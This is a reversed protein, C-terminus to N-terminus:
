RPENVRFNGGVNRHIVRSDGEKIMVDVAYSRGAVFTDMFLKFRLGLSDSSMKTSNSSEDFPIVVDNTVADRVSYHVAEPMYSKALRTVKTSTDAVGLKRVFARLHVAQDTTYEEQVNTLSVVYQVPMLGFTQADQSKLTLTQSLFPVTGDLSSWIETFTVSGSTALQERIAPISTPVAVSAYYTGSTYPASTYQSAPFTFTYIGGSVPTELRLSICNPGTLSSLAAGSVLNKLGGPVHNYLFLTGSVDLTMNNRDDSVADNWRAILRPRKWPDNASRSGFRKVFRSKTDNEEASVFSIRFGKDPILGAITASILSTIDLLLDETGLAFSQSVGFQTIGAGINGSTIIDINSSGLLGQGNAGSAFWVSAGGSWSATLFNATDRDRYYAVDRGTGEDFSRSLPYLVLSFNAPTTQSGYVDSLKLLVSFTPDNVAIGASSMQAQLDSLDFKILARSLEVNPVSGSSTVGYLKFLDLTGARGLNAGTVRRGSIVRDTIYTDKEAFLIRYM